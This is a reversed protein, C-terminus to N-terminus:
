IRERAIVEDFDPEYMLTEDIIQKAEKLTMGNDEKPLFCRRKM